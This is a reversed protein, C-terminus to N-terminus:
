RWRSPPAQRLACPGRRSSATLHATTGTPSGRQRAVPSSDSSSGPPAASWRAVPSLPSSRVCWTPPAPTRPSMRPCTVATPSAHPRVEDALLSLPPNTWTCMEDWGGLEVPGLQPHQFPYWPVFMEPHHEDSWALVGLEEAETPGTYWFHTSQKSGTATKVVDWFETTWGYVGLHDYAWDDAAGSMTVTPDWTFDEYVSHATYGTVATGFEALQGYVWVDMPPLASDRKTSSPRLLVGGSTHFANYGCVNPRATVARVLADIEPESLPHDGSGTVGTGWGSPFNRNMDLGETSRPTPVTFGDFDVLEGETLLRYREAGAPAGDVPVPRMIRHDERSAMWAGNPDALRMTLVRGDGDVDGTHLGPMRHADRWPWPRTSSRRFRPADALAWEVGDPNVRPVIYFTRTHLARTVTDDTGHGTVLREIIWLAAVGATVEVSHINADVWHAPKTDHVGTSGDTLTALWLDRGEHSTGYSEVTMLGPHAAATDHLWATLEDYRLYRDFAYTV